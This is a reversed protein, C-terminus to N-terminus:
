LQICVRSDSFIAGVSRDATACCRFQSKIHSIVFYFIYQPFEETAQLAATVLFIKSSLNSSFNFFNCYIIRQREEVLYLLRDCHVNGENLPRIGESVLGLCRWGAMILTLPPLSCLWAAFTIVLASLPPGDPQAAQPGVSKALTRPMGEADSACTPRDTPNGQFLLTNAERDDMERESAAGRGGVDFVHVPM